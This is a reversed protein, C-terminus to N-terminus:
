LMGKFLTIKRTIEDMSYKADKHSLVTLEQATGNGFRVDIQSSLDKDLTNCESCQPLANRLDWRTKMFRRKRFHGCTLNAWNSRYICTACKVQDNTDIDRKRIVLSFVRDCEKILSEKNM